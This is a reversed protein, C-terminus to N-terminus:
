FSVANEMKLSKLWCVFASECTRYSEWCLITLWINFSKSGSIKFILYLCGNMLQWPCSYKIIVVYRGLIEYVQSQQIFRKINNSGLPHLINILWRRKKTMFYLLLFWNGWLNSCYIDVAEGIVINMFLYTLHNILIQKNDFIFLYTLHSNGRFFLTDGSSCQCLVINNGKNNIM